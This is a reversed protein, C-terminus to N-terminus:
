WGRTLGLDGGIYGSEVDALDALGGVSVEPDNICLDEVEQGLLYLSSKIASRLYGIMETPDLDEPDREYAAKLVEVALHRDGM